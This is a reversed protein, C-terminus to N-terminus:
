AIREAILDFHHTFKEAYKCLPHDLRTLPADEVGDTTKIQERAEIGMKVYPTLVNDESMQIAADKVIFWERATWQEQGLEESMDFCSKMGVIPQEYEGM